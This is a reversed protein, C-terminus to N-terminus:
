GETGEELWSAGSIGPAIEVRVITWRQPPQQVLIYLYTGGGLVKRGSPVPSDSALRTRSPLHYVDIRDHTTEARSTATTILHGRTVVLLTDEVVTLAAIVDFTSMWSSLREAAGPGTFEGPRPVGAQRFSRPMPLSDVIEGQRGHIEIPYRLSYAAVFETTSATLL